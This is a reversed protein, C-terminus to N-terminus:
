GRWMFEAITGIRSGSQTFYGGLVVRSPYTPSGGYWLTYVQTPEFPRVLTLVWNAADWTGSVHEDQNIVDYRFDAKVQGQNVSLIHLTGTSGNANLRYLGTIDVDARVKAAASSRESAPAQGAAAAPIGAVAALLAAVVLPSRRIRRM